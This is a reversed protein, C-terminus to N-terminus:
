FITHLPPFPLNFTSDRGANICHAVDNLNIDMESHFYGYNHSIEHRVTELSSFASDCLEDESAVWIVLGESSLPRTKPPRQGCGCAPFGCSDPAAGVQQSTKYINITLDIPRKISTNGNHGKMCNVFSVPEPNLSLHPLQSHQKTAGINKYIHIGYNYWHCKRSTYHFCYLAGPTKGDEAFDDAWDAALCTGAYVYSGTNCSSNPYSHASVEAVFFTNIFDAWSYLADISNSWLQDLDVTLPVVPITTDQTMDFLYVAKKRKERAQNLINELDTQENFIAFIYPFRSDPSVFMERSYRANKKAVALQKLTTKDMEPMWKYGTPLQSKLARPLKSPNGIVIVDTQYSKSQASSAFGCFGFIAILSFISLIRLNILM